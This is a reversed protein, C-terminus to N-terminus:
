PRGGQKVAEAAKCNESSIDHRSLYANLAEVCEARTIPEENSMQQYMFILWKQNQEDETRLLMDNLREMGSCRAAAWLCNLEHPQWRKNIERPIHSELREKPEEVKFYGIIEAAFWILNPDDSSLWCELRGLLNNREMKLLDAVVLSFAQGLAREENRTQQYFTWQRKRAVGDLFLLSQESVSLSQFEAQVDKISIKQIRPILKSISDRYLYAGGMIFAPWIASGIVSSSFELYDM